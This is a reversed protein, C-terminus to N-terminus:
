PLRRLAFHDGVGWGSGPYVGSKLGVRVYRIGLRVSWYLDRGLALNAAIASSLACGTGHTARTAIRPHRIARERKGDFFLDTVEGGRGHGGTLLVAKAGLAAIARAAEGLDAKRRIRMGAIEEAEPINPTVLDCLPLLERRLAAVAAASLLRTGSKAVMVPDLVVNRPTWRELGKAVARVRAADFLAGIKVARPSLDSFIADIQASLFALPLKEVATIRRTNQATAAVLVTAGYVGQAAFTLLDAQIGAGGGSDSAAISVACVPRTRIEKM